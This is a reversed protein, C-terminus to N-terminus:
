QQGKGRAKSGERGETHLRKQGLELRNGATKSLKLLVGRASTEERTDRFLSTLEGKVACM